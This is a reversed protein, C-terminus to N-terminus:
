LLKQLNDVSKPFVAMGEHLVETIFTLQATYRGNAEGFGNEM